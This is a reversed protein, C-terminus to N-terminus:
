SVVSFGFWLVQALTLRCTTKGVSMWLGGSARLQKMVGFRAGATGILKLFASNAETEM